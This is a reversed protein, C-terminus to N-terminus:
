LRSSDVEIGVKELGVIKCELFTKNRLNLDTPFSLNLVKKWFSKIQSPLWAKTLRLNVAKQRYEEPIKLIFQFPRPIRAQNRAQQLALSQITAQTTSSRLSYPNKQYNSIALPSNPLHSWSSDYWNESQFIKFRTKTYFRTLLLYFMFKELSCLGCAEWLTENPVFVSGGSYARILNNYLVEIACWSSESMYLNQYIGYTLKGRMALTASKLLFDSLGLNRLMRLAICRPRIYDKLMKLHPNFTFSEDFIVGLIKLTPVHELDKFAIDLSLKVKKNSIVMIKSKNVNLTFEERLCWDNFSKLAMNLLTELERALLAVCIITLDDAYWVRLGNGDYSWMFSINFISPSLPSGQPVGRRLWISTGEFIIQRKFWDALYLILWGYMNSNQLNLEKLLAYSNLIAKKHGCSNFADSLDVQALGVLLKQSKAEHIYEMITNLADDTGHEPRFAFSNKFRSSKDILKIFLRNVLRDILAIIRSALQLPRVAATNENKPIFSLRSRKLRHDLLIASKKGFIESNIFNTLKQQGAVSTPFFQHRFSDPGHSASSNLKDIELGVEIRSFSFRTEEATKALTTEVAVTNLPNNEEATVMGAAATEVSAAKALATEVDAVKLVAPKLVAATELAAAKALATKVAASKVVNATEAATTKVPAAKLSATEVVAAKAVATKVPATEVVATKVVAATEATTTKVPAAKSSATEGVAAKVFATEVAVAKVVAVTEAATTKVSAAKSSATEVVAAKVVAATEAATTKVPAARSSATEVVAAKVVATKVLATEVVAAKVPATETTTAEEVAAAKVLTTEATATEAATEAATTGALTTEVATTTQVRYSETFISKQRKMIRKYKLFDEKPLREKETVKSRFKRLAKNSEKRSYSNEKINTLELGKRFTDILKFTKGVDKMSSIEEASSAWFNSLKSNVDPAYTSCAEDTSETEFELFQNPAVNAGEKRVRCKATLENALKYIQNLSPHDPLNSWLSNVSSPELKSPDFYHHSKAKPQNNTATDTLLCPIKVTFLAHDGIQFGLDRIDTAFAAKTICIDTCTSSRTSSGHPLFTPWTLEQYFENSNMFADFKSDRDRTSINADGIILQSDKSKDFFDSLASESNVSPALYCNIISYSGKPSELDIKHFQMGTTSSLDKFKVSIEDSKRILTLLGQNANDVEAESYLYHWKHFPFCALTELTPRKRKYEQWCVIGIRRDKVIKWLKRIKENSVGNSNCSLVHNYNSNEYIM